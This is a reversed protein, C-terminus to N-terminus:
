EVIGTNWRAVLDNVSLPPPPDIADPEATENGVARGSFWQMLYRYCKLRDEASLPARQIAAVYRWIYEGYLRVAPHRLRSARRPDLNVCRKRMSTRGNQGPHVRRFYLWDPVQYFRGLLGLEAILTHDAHHHSGQLGTRRLVEIRIVGYDDDGGRDFLVSRFREPAYPTATSLAYEFAKILNGATDIKATWSHALVVDPYEDLAAVCSEILTRAYLDDASAWKFLEGRAEHVSFNQNPGIGINAPHRYYRIREDDRAYGRCIEETSDTSANDTIILEFDTYSQGLLAEIAQSVFPEGNRVPLGISLRPTATM